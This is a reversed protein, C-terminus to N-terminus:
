DNSKVKKLLNKVEEAYDDASWGMGGWTELEKVIEEKTM